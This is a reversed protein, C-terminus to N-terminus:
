GQQAAKWIMIEYRYDPLTRTEHAYGNNALIRYLPLPERDILMCLRQQPQLESLAGLVRELPEPPELGCVDLHVTDTM